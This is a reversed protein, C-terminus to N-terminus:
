GSRCSSRSRARPVPRPGLARAAPGARRGAVSLLLSETLLQRVIRGRTAGLAFRLAIERQRGAGRALMLNAVNACAILLVFGVAAMLLALIPGSTTSWTERFTSSAARRHRANTEPYQRALDAAIAPSRPTPRRRVDRGAQATGVVDLFRQDRTDDAPDIPIPSSSTPPRPSASSRAARRRRHHARPREDQRHPRARQPDAGFRERWIRDSIMIVGDPAARRRRRACSSAARADSSAGFMAFLGSTVATASSASRSRASRSTPRPRTTAPRRAEFSKARDRVDMFDPM